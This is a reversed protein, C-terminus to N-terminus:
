ASSSRCAHPTLVITAHLYRHHNAQHVGEDAQQPQAEEGVEERAGDDTAEGGTSGEDDSDGLHAAGIPLM